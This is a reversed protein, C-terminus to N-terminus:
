SVLPKGNHRQYYPHSTIKMQEVLYAWDQKLTQAFTEPNGGSIDYEICCTRGYEEASAMLNKLVVEGGARNGPISGVFRQVLVGDLGYEKMWRFHRRVTEPKRSSFLYAPQGAITMAPIECREDPELESVDPYLDVTLTEPTPVGRSWHTWRGSGDQPCTFWGQYGILVKNDLTSPNVRDAACLGAAGILLAALLRIRVM